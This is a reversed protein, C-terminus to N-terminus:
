IREESTQIFFMFITQTSKRNNKPLRILNIELSSSSLLLVVEGYHVTKRKKKGYKKSNRHTPCNESALEFDDIAKM